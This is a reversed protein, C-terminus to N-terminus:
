LCFRKWEFLFFVNVQDIRRAQLTGVFHYQTGWDVAPEGAFTFSVSGMTM